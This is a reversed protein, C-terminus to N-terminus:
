AVSAKALRRLHVYEGFCKISAFNTYLYLSLGINFGRPGSPLDAYTNLPSKQAYAILVLIDNEPVHLLQVICIGNLTKSVKLLIFLLYLVNHTYSYNRMFTFKCSGTTTLVTTLNVFQGFEM